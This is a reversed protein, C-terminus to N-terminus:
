VYRRTGGALVIKRDIVREFADDLGGGAVIERREYRHTAVAQVVVRWNAPVSAATIGFGCVVDVWCVGDGEAVDINSTDRFYVSPRSGKARVSYLSADLVQEADDEDLYGIATVSVLPQRPIWISEDVPLRNLVLRRKQNILAVQGRTEVEETADAIYGGFESQLLANDADHDIQMHQKLMDISVPWVVNLENGDFPYRGSPGDLLEFSGEINDAQKVLWSSRKTM